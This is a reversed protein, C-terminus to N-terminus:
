WCSNLDFHDGKWSLFIVNVVIRRMSWNKMFKRDRVAAFCTGELNSHSVRYVSQNLITSSSGRSSTQLRVEWLILKSKSTGSGRKQLLNWCHLIKVVCQPVFLTHCTRRKFHELSRDRVIGLQPSRNKGKLPSRDRAIGWSRKSCTGYGNMMKRVLSLSIM